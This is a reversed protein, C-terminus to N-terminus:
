IKKKGALLAFERWKWHCDVDIFGIERMWQLQIEPSVCKNSPDEDALTEGIAVFFDNRLSQTPAAVHELNCFIGDYELINYIEKYLSFKREDTLHHIAFSSVVVDFKGLEPLKDDLNHEVISVNKDNIFRERSSALMTPSFDIAVGQANPHSIKLISLLRGDGTGLDLVRKVTRPLLEIIVAEGETRHPLKDARALYQLAHSAKSYENVNQNSM